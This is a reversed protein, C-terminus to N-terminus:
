WSNKDSHVSLAFHIGTFFLMISAPIRKKRGKIQAFHNKQHLSFVKM